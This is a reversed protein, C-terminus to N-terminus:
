KRTVLQLLMAWLSSSRALLRSGSKELRAGARFGRRGNQGMAGVVARDLEPFWRVVVGEGEQIGHKELQSRIERARRAAAATM